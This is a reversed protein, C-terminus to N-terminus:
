TLGHIQGVADRLTDAFSVRPGERYEPAVVSEPAQSVHVRPTAPITNPTQSYKGVGAKHDSTNHTLNWCKCKDNGCWFYTKGNQARRVPDTALPPVTKWGDKGKGSTPPM